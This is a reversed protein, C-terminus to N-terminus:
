LPVCVCDAVNVFVRLWTLVDECLPVDLPNDVGLWVWLAPAEEVDVLVIDVVADCDELWTCDALAVCDGVLEPVGLATAVGLEVEEGEPVRVALSDTVCLAFGVGLPDCPDLLLTVGDSVTVGVSVDVDVADSVAECLGVILPELDEM